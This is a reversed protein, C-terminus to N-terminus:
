HRQNERSAAKEWWVIVQKKNEKCGIGSRYFDGLWTQADPDEQMASKKM